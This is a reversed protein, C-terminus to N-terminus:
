DENPDDRADQHTPHITGPLHDRPGYLAYVKLDEDGTNTVNHWTGAPVMIVMDDEVDRVFDLDDKGPGM